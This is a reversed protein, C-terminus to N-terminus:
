RDALVMELLKYLWERDQFYEKQLFIVALVIFMQQNNQTM